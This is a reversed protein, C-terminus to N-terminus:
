IEKVEGQGGLKNFDVAEYKNSRVYNYVMPYNSSFERATGKYYIWLRKGKLRLNEAVQVFAEELRKNPFEYYGMYILLPDREVDLLRRYKPNNGLFIDVLDYISLLDISLYKGEDLLSFLFMSKMKDSSNIYLRYKGKVRKLIRKEIDSLDSDTPLLKRYRRIIRLEKPNM